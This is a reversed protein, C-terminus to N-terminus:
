VTRYLQIYRPLSIKKIHEYAHSRDSFSFSANSKKNKM